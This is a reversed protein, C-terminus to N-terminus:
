TVERKGPAVSSHSTPLKHLEEASTDGPCESSRLDSIAMRSLVCRCSASEDRVTAASLRRLRIKMLMEHRVQPSKGEKKFIQKLQLKNDIQMFVLSEQFASCASLVPHNHTQLCGCFVPPKQLVQSAPSQPEGSALLGLRAKVGTGKETPDPKKTQCGAFFPSNHSM